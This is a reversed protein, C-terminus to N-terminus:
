PSPLPLLKQGDSFLIEGGWNQISGGEEVVNNFLDNRLDAKGNPYVHLERFTRGAESPDTADLVGGHVHIITINGENWKFKGGKELLTGIAGALHTWSGGYFNLTTFPQSNTIQGGACTIESPLSVSSDSPITLRVDTQQAAVFGIFLRTVIEINAKFVVVGRLLELTGIKGDLSIGSNAANKVLVRRLGYTAGPAGKLHILNVSRGDIVVKSDEVGASSDHQVKLIIPTGSQGIDGDYTEEVLFSSLETEGSLDIGVPSDCGSGLPGSFIAEDYLGADSGPWRAAGYPTGAEDKWNTGEKWDDDTAGGWWFIDNDAM